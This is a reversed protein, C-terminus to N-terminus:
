ETEKRDTMDQWLEYYLRRMKSLDRELDETKENSIAETRLKRNEETLGQCRASLILYEDYLEKVFSVMSPEIKKNKMADELREIMLVAMSSDIVRM